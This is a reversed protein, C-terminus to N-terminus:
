HRGLLRRLRDRSVGLAEAARKVNGGADNLAREIESPTPLAREPETKESPSAETSELEAVVEPTAAIFEGSSSALAVRLLQALERTHHTYRHRLLRDVLVPDVRPEGNEFFRERLAPTQVAMRGLLTRAILPIDGAREEFGPVRIRVSFRALVDHKLAELPRNTAAILRFDSRRARSEGLRHYEGGDDLVRLLRTQAGEPLEGIEDLLLTGLHAAGVLGEREPLGPNPFNRASGFLEADILGEPITAASRAVFAGSSRRSLRHVGRAALEKGAGSDGTILVHEGTAAAEALRERLAWTAASEGVIGDADAEGFRFDPSPYARREPLEPPLSAVLLVATHELMLTDGPRARCETVPTGNHFLRRKGVCRVALEADGLPHLELQRRSIGQTTLTSAGLVYGPRVQRWDLLPLSSPSQEAGARGFLSPASIHAVQASRDPENLLWAIVLHLARDAAPATGAYWPLSVSDDTPDPDAPPDPDPM